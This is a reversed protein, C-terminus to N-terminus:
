SQNYLSQLEKVVYAKGTGTLVAVMNHAAQMAMDFRTQATASGIHPLAVVNDLQLLPNDPQVPEQTFVDLGAGRIRGSLLAEVLASEDVTQGRSANIFFADPKMLAFQEKGMLKMTKPTLPTMLVVFDSQQLLEPLSVYMAGYQVEADPRRSRNHYLLKMGFGHVARKAIAEGIRGMGIIGLTRHHVDMGFLDEEKLGSGRKWRGEKVFRDLEPIRRSVSLMLGLVTDAVTEDLVYPTHTGIVGRQRMAEIDFNNYGVSINSVARLKPAADLLEQDIPGGTTILGEADSIAELLGQRSSPVNEDKMRCDCYAELWELVKAPIPKSIYVKPKQGGM